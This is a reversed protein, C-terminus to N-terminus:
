SQITEEFYDITRRLGEMLAVKPEWGLREKALEISPQRQRPDDPPLPEYVIKSKSDTLEITKEALELISFEQPNGLNIPGTVEDGSDM